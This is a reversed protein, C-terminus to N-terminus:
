VSSGFGDDEVSAMEATKPEVPLQPVASEQRLRFRHDVGGSTVSM